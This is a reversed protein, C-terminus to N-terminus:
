SFLDGLDDIHDDETRELRRRRRVEQIDKRKKDEQAQAKAIEEFNGQFTEALLVEGTPLVMGDIAQIFHQLQDEYTFTLYATNTSIIETSRPKFDFFQRALKIGMNIIHPLSGSNSRVIATFPFMHHDKTKSAVRAIRDCEQRFRLREQNESSLLADVLALTTVAEDGANDTNGHLGERTNSRARGGPPTTRSTRGIIDSFKSYLLWVPSSQLQPLTRRSTWRSIVFM